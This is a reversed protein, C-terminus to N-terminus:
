KASKLYTMILITRKSVKFLDYFNSMKNAKFLDYYNTMKSVKFLDFFMTTMKNVKFLDYNFYDNQKSQFLRKAAKSCTLFFLLVGTPSVPHRHMAKKEWGEKTDDRM